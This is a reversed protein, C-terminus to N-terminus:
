KETPLNIRKGDIEIWSDHVFEDSPLSSALQWIWFAVWLLLPGVGLAILLTRLRYRM